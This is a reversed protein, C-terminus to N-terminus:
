FKVMQICETLYDDMIQQVLEWDPDEKELEGDLILAKMRPIQDSDESIELLMEGEAFSAAGIFGVGEEKFGLVFTLKPFMKSITQVGNVPPSWPTQFYYDVWGEKVLTGVDFIPRMVVSNEPHLEDPWKCGWASLAWTYWDTTGYKAILADADAGESNSLEEPMPLFTALLSNEGSQVLKTHFEALSEEDAAYVTLSNECWNPM